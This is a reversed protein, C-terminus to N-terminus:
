FFYFRKKLTLIINSKSTKTAVKPDDLSIQAQQMNSSQSQNSFQGVFNNATPTSSPSSSVLTTSDTTSSNNNSNVSSNANNNSSTTSSSASYFNDAISNSTMQINYAFDNADNFEDNGSPTNMTPNMSITQHVKKSPNGNINPLLLNGAMDLFAIELIQGKM